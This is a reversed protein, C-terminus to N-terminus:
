RPITNILLTWEIPNPRYAVKAIHQTVTTLNEGETSPIGLIEIFNKLQNQKMIEFINSLQSMEKRLKKNEKVVETVSINSTAAKQELSAIRKEQGEFKGMCERHNANMDATLKSIAALLEQNSVSTGASEVQTAM